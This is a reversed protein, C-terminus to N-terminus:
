WNKSEKRLVAMVEETKSIKKPYIITNGDRSVRMSVYIYGFGAIDRIEKILTIKGSKDYLYIGHAFNGREKPHINARSFMITGDACVGYDDIDKAILKPPNRPSKLDIAYLNTTGEMFNGFFGTIYIKTNDPSPYVYKKLFAGKIKIPITTAQKTKPDLVYVNRDEHGYLFLRNGDWSWRIDNFDMPKGKKTKKIPLAIVELEEGGPLVVKEQWQDPGILYQGSPSMPEKLERFPLARDSAYILSTKKTRTDYAYLNKQVVDGGFPRKQFFVYRGDPSCSPNLSVPTERIEEIRGSEVDIL